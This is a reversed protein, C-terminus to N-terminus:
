ATRESPARRNWSALASEVDRGVREIARSPQGPEPDCFHMVSYSVPASYRMGTWMRGNERLTTEGAGCFPCPAFFLDPDSM